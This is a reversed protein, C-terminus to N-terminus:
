LALLVGFFYARYVTVNPALRCLPNSLSLQNMINQPSNM